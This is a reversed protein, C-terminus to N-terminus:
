PPLHVPADIEFSFPQVPQGSDFALMFEEVNKPTKIEWKRTNYLWLANVYWPGPVVDELALAVPCATCDSRRGHIIHDQTVEVCIRQCHTRM